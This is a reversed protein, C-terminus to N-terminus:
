PTRDLKFVADPSPASVTLRLVGSADAELEREAVVEGTGADYRRMRWRSKAALGDILADGGGSQTRRHDQDMGRPWVYLRIARDSRM